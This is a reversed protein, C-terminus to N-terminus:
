LNESIVSEATKIKEAAEAIKKDAEEILRKVMDIVEGLEPSEANCDQEMFLRHLKLKFSNLWIACSPLMPRNM